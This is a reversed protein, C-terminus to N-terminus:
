RGVAIYNFTGSPTLTAAPRTCQISAVQVYAGNTSTTDSSPRSHLVSNGSRTLVFEIAIDYNGATLSQTISHTYTENWAATQATSYGSYSWSSASHLKYKLRCEHTAAVLHFSNNVLGDEHKTALGSTTISIVVKNCNNGTQVTNTTLICSKNNSLGPEHFSGISVDSQAEAIEAYHDYFSFRGPPTVNDTASAVSIKAVPKIVYKGSSLTTTVDCTFTQNQKPYSGSYTQINKPTCIVSPTSEYTNSLTTNANNTAQGVEINTLSRMLTGLYYQNLYGDDIYSYTGSNPANPDKVTITGQTGNFVINGNNLTILTNAKIMNGVIWSANNNASRVFLNGNISVNGTTSDVTFIQVPTSAM